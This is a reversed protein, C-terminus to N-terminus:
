SSRGFLQLSPATEATEGLIRPEPKGRTLAAMWALCGGFGAAVALLVLQGIATRYPRMFATNAQMAVFATLTIGTVLRATVRPRAREAEVQRWMSVQRDVADSLRELSRSLGPGRREAARSLAVAVFDATGDALCDAFGRLAVPAPQGASLRAALTAVEAAIPAAADRPSAILAQELSVGSTIRTALSRTWSALADLRAIRAKGSGGVTFVAPLGLVAAAALLGMAPIATILWAAAAAVGAVTLQLHRATRERVSAGTGTLWRLAARVPGIRKPGAQAPAPRTGVIATLLGVGAILGFAASLLSLAPAGLGATVGPERARVAAGPGAEVV